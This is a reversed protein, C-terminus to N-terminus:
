QRKERPRPNAPADRITNRWLGRDLADWECLGFDNLDRRILENWTKRPRGRGLRGGAEFLFAKKIGVDDDRRYVHGFWRLRARKVVISIDESLGLRELLNQSCVRNRLTVGCMRIMRREARKLCEESEKRISWCECGYTM